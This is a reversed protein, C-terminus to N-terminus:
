LLRTLDNYFAVTMLMLLLAIGIRQGFAQTALSVPSGKFIEAVYYLLHGGDLVPIPLLNLVGLSISIVALIYLFQNFGSRLSQGTVQAIQIPGGIQRWSMQGTLMKGFTKLILGSLRWTEHNAALFAAGFGYVQVARHAEFEAILEPSPPPPGVGVRGISGQETALTQPIVKLAVPQGDREVVLDIVKGPRAQVYHVWALWDGVIEGDASVLEDGTKLGAQDAAEGPVIEGAIAPISQKSRWGVLGLAALPDSADLDVASLELPTKRQSQDPATVSLTVTEGAVAADFLALRVARWTPTDEGDVATIRDGEALGAVAAPTDATVPGVESVLGPIGNVFLLWYAAIAFLFNFGPGAVVVAIRKWVNQRNFALHLLESPVEDEREDLMKVYGGLPIAALIYEVGDKGTRSWLPRGFGISFKLVKIGCWKAVIFHGYEHVAVLVAIAILFGLASFLLDM